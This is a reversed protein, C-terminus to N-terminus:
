ILRLEEEKRRVYKQILQANNEYSALGCSSFEAICQPPIEDAIRMENNNTSPHNELQESALTITGSTTVAKESLRPPSKRESKLKASPFRAVVVVVVVRTAFLEVSSYSNCM